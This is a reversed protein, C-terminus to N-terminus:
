EPALEDGASEFYEGLALLARGIALLEGSDGSPDGPARKSSGTATISGVDSTMSEFTATAVVANRDTLTVVTM